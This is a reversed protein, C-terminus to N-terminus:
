DPLADLWAQAADATEFGFASRFWPFVPHQKWERGTWYVAKRLTRAGGALCVVGYWGPAPPTIQFDILGIPATM